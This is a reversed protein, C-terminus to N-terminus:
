PTYIYLGKVFKKSKQSREELQSFSKKGTSDDNDLSDKTSFKENKLHISPPKKPMGFPTYVGGSLDRPTKESMNAVALCKTHVQFKIHVIRRSMKFDDFLDQPM